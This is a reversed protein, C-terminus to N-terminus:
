KRQGQFNTTRGRLVNVADQLGRRNVEFMPVLHAIEGSTTGLWRKKPMPNLWAIYRVKQKLQALFKKTLEYREESYGGRAAGADSYILVATRNSCSHTIIDSVLEAEQYNRDRYLYETPCNHFYYIGSRGLRGGRWSTRALRYSMEHFPVMSGDQDILLLLEARNVRRPLLVPELLIGQHGIQKVTTEVDLETRQGERVPRRLYRWIQKMQRETVPLYETSLIFRNYLIEESTSTAQLVVQAVQVEDKITQTLKTPIASAVSSPTLKALSASRNIRQEFRRQSIWRFFIYGSGGSLNIALLLSWFILDPQNTDKPIATPQTRPISTPHSTPAAAPQPTATPQLTSQATPQPAQTRQKLTLGVGLIIGIGVFGLILYRTILSFQHQGSYRVVKESTPLISNISILQEFHHEFLRLEEASKVWLTRCLRKLAAQDNIGFGAQMAQLVLQYEEIGLPLGAERLKTFLELLPLDNVEM